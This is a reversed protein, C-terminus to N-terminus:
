LHLPQHSLHSASPSITLSIITQFHLRRWTYLCRISQGSANTDDKSQNNDRISVYSRREHMIGIFVLRRKENRWKGALVYQWLAVTLRTLAVRWYQWLSRRWMWETWETQGDNIWFVPLHEEKFLRAFVGKKNQNRLYVAGTMIKSGDLDNPKITEHLRHRTRRTVLWNNTVPHIVLFHIRGTM